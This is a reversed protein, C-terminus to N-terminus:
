EIQGLVLSGAEGVKSLSGAQGLVYILHTSCCTDKRAVLERCCTPKHLPWPGHKKHGAAPVVRHLVKLVRQADVVVPQVGVVHVPGGVQQAALAALSHSGDLVAPAHRATLEMSLLEQHMCQM